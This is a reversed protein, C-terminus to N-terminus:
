RLHAFVEFSLNCGYFSSAIGTNLNKPAEEATEVTTISHVRM